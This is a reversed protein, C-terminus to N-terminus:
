AATFTITGASELALSYIEEAGYDGSREYSNILFAGSLMDGNAFIFQYNNVSGALAYNMLMGEAASDTFLGSGAISLSSIGANRLLQKWTGSQVNSTNLIQNELKMGSTHLGGITSFAEPTAGNGIKILVLAGNQITM